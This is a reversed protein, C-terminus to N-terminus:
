KKDDLKFMVPITVEAKVKKGDKIAPLFETAKIAAIAAEALVPNGDNALTANIVKGDEGVVAKILVKGQIKEAKASEPYVVNQLIAKMGGVPMPHEGEKEQAYHSTFSAVLIIILFLIKINKM